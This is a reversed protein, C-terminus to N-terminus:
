EEEDGDETQTNEVTDRADAADEDDTAYGRKHLEAIVATFFLNRYLWAQDGYEFLLKIQRPEIFPERQKAFEATLWAVSQTNIWRRLDGTRRYAVTFKKLSLSQEHILEAARAGLQEIERLHQEPMRMVETLYSSLLDFLDGVSAPVRPPKAGDVAEHVAAAITYPFRSPETLLLRALRAAGSVKRTTCARELEAYAASWRPRLSVTRVWRTMSQSLQYETFEQEKNSNTFVLLSVDSTVTARPRYRRIGELVLQEREFGGSPLAPPRGWAQKRTYEVQRHTSAALFDDDWSHVASLRGRHVLCGHPLAYFSALCGVCLALGDHGPVTTNRYEASAALVVDVKGFFGCARRTCLVCPAQPWEESGPPTRWAKTAEAREDVSLKKRNTTNMKSNPWLMYSLSLWFAGPEKADPMGAMKVLTATMEQWVGRFLAEDVERPHTVQAMAAMAFAGCRQLPHATLVVPEDVFDEPLRAPVGVASTGSM